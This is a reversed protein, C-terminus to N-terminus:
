FNQEIKKIEYIISSGKDANRLATLNSICGIFFARLMGLMGSEKYKESLLSVYFSDFWMPLKQVISMKHKKALYHMSLPSFHYLHRPVDYAAWYKKYFGADYSTYNPVAIVLRGNPKLLRHFIKMYENLDHVHELVHWLTIVEFSASDLDNLKEIPLLQINYNELAKNRSSENPELATVKWGKKSMSHAFAGTGAGVELLQGKHGTFLSQVWNTKQTLTINRVKHYIQNVLGEKSDTHSIYSPFNYYPTIAEKSPAPDTYELTCHSCQIIQFDEGTLSYDKTYLLTSIDEKNCIPCPSFQKNNELM